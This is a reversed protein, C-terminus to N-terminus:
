YGPYQPYPQHPYQPYGYPYQPYAVPYQGKQQLPMTSPAPAQPPPPYSPPPPRHDQPQPPRHRTHDPPSPAGLQSGPPRPEHERFHTRSSDRDYTDQYGPPHRPPPPQSPPPPRHDRERDIPPRSPPPPRDRGPPHTPPPPPRHDQRGEFFSANFPPRHDRDSYPDSKPAGFRSAPGSFGSRSAHDRRPPYHSQRDDRFDRREPSQHRSDDKRKWPPLTDQPSDRDYDSFERRGYDRKDRDFRGVHPRFGPFGRPNFGRGRFGGRSLTFGRPHGSTSSSPARGTLGRIAELAKARLAARAPMDAPGGRGAHLSEYDMGEKRHNNSNANNKGIKGEQKPDVSVIENLFSEYEMDIKSKAGAKGRQPCDSTPHSPEGCFDCVVEPGDFHRRQGAPRSGWDSIDGRLTGNYDALQRLQIMKLSNTADDVPVLLQEVMEQARDLQAQSDAVIYVHLPENDFPTPIKASGEKQSGKGRISIKAGSERELQKHTDGRPGIITGIFNYDPYEDVPIPVKLSKKTAVPSFDLPPKFLPNVRKADNICDQRLLEFRETVRLIRTNTRKGDPAYRPPPSPSRKVTEDTLGIDNNRLSQTIEEIRIRVIIPCFALNLRM